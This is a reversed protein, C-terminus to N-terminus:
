ARVRRATARRPRLRVLQATAMLRLLAYGLDLEHWARSFSPDRPQEHHNRHLGEGFTVLALSGLNRASDGPAIRARASDHAVSNVLWALHWVVVIRLPFAWLAATPGLAVVAVAFAGINLELHHRELGRMFPDRLISATLTRLHMPRYGNPGKHFAWGIHSWWFGRAASHPDGDRDAFKHHARHFGVWTAPGGQLSLTGLLALARRVLRPAVFSEHALGRHFGLSIGLAASLVYAVAFAVLARTTPAFLLALAALSHVAAILRVQKRSRAWRSRRAASDAPARLVIERPAIESM